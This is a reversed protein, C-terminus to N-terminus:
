RVEAFTKVDHLSAMARVSEAAMSDVKRLFRGTIFPCLPSFDREIRRIIGITANRVGASDRREFDGVTRAYSAITDVANLFLQAAARYDRRAYATRAEDGLLAVETTVLEDALISGDNRPKGILLSSLTINLREIGQRAVQADREVLTVKDSHLSLLYWLRLADSGFREILTSPEVVNGSRPEMRRRSRRYLFRDEDAAPQSESPSREVKQEDPTREIVHVAGHVYVHRFVPNGYVALAVLQSPVVWRALFQPDTFVTDIPSPLSQAPWGAAQLSLAVLSFWPSLTQGPRVPLENGWLSQRSICWPELKDIQRLVDARVKESSLTFTRRRIADALDRTQSSLDLFIQPSLDPDVLSGCRRCRLQTRAEIVQGLRAAVSAGIHAVADDRKMTERERVRVQDGDYIPTGPPLGVTRAFRRHEDIGSPVILEADVDKMDPGIVVPMPQRTFPNTATAGAYAAYKSKEHVAIAVAHPIFELRPTRCEIDAGRDTTCRIAYTTVAERGDRQVDSTALNTECRPCRYGFRIDERILGRQLLRDFLARVVSSGATSMPDLWTRGDFGIGLQTLQDRITADNKAHRDHCEFFLDDRSTEAREYPLSQEVAYQLASGGPDVGLIRRARAESGQCRADVDMLLSSLFGGLHPRSATSIPTAAISPGSGSFAGTMIAARHLVPEDAAHVFLAAVGDKIVGDGSTAWRSRVLHDLLRRGRHGILPHLEAAAVDALTDAAKATSIRLREAQRVVRLTDVYVQEAALRVDEELYGRWEDACNVIGMRNCLYDPVYLIGRRALEEADNPERLQNNAAGCVMRVKLRPITKENLQEGRACPSFIDAEVDFIGDPPDVITVDPYKERVAALAKPGVDAVSLRCGADHLIELLPSGVNGVGQIAVRVGRLDESGTLSGWAAQIARFVGRATYRSPNGSGGRDAGICTTFRNQSLLTNMDSTGTGMDEATYYVGGLSAVFRGYSMFLEQREETYEMFKEVSPVHAPLPIIGKGGGWPLGALANKRTMGQSLRLGDSMLDAMNAYPAIRLGGQALGRRTDHVFATFITDIAPDRAIFVAEHDAFDHSLEFFAQLPRLAAHSLVFSGNEFMLYARRIKKEDMLAAFDQVTWNRVRRAEERRRLDDRGATGKRRM